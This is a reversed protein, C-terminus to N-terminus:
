PTSPPRASATTPRSSPATRGGLYRAPCPLTGDLSGIVIHLDLGVVGIFDGATVLNALVQFMDGPFKGFAIEGRGHEDMRLRRGAHSRHLAQPRLDLVLEFGYSSLGYRHM